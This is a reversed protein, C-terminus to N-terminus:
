LGNKEKVKKTIIPTLLQRVIEAMSLQQEESMVRIVEHFEPTLAITLPKNFRAYKM